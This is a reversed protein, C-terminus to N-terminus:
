LRETLIRLLFNKWTIKPVIFVQSYVAEMSEM